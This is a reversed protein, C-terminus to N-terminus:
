LIVWLLYLTLAHLVSVCLNCIAVPNDVGATAPTTIKYLIQTALLAAIMNEVTARSSKNSRTYLALLVISVVLISIYMSLLIGRSATPPGWGYIVLDSTSFGILVTCVAILVGINIGLSIRVFLDCAKPGIFISPLRLAAM